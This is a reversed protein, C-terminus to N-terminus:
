RSTSVVLGSSVGRGFGRGFFSQRRRFPDYDAISFCAELAQNSTTQAGKKM